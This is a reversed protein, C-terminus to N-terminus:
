KPTCIIKSTQTPHHRLLPTSQNGLSDSTFEEDRLYHDYLFINSTKEDNYKLLRISKMNFLKM